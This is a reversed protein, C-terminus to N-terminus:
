LVGGYSKEWSSRVEGEKELTGKLLFAGGPRAAYTRKELLSYFEFETGRLAGRSFL